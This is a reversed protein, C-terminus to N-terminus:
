KPTYDLKFGDPPPCDNVGDMDVSDADAAKAKRHASLLAKMQLSTINLWQSLDPQESSCCVCVRSWIWGIICYKLLFLCFDHLLHATANALFTWQWLHLQSIFSTLLEVFTVEMCLLKRSILTVFELSLQFEVQVRALDIPFDACHSCKLASTGCVHM